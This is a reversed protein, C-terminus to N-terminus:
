KGAFIIVLCVCLCVRHKIHSRLTYNSFSVFPIVSLYPYSVKTNVLVYQQVTSNVPMAPQRIFHSDKEQVKKVIHRVYKLSDPKDNPGKKSKTQIKKPIEYSGSNFDLFSIHRITQFM